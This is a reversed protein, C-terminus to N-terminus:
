TDAEWMGENEAVEEYVRSEYAVITVDSSMSVLSILRNRRGDEYRPTPM